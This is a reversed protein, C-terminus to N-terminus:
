KISVASIITCGIMFLAKLWRCSRTAYAKQLHAITSSYIFVTQFLEFFCSIFRETHFQLNKLPYTTM